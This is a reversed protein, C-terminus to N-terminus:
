AHVAGEFAYGFVEIDAAYREAVYAITEEDHYEPYPLRDRSRAAHATPIPRGLLGALGALDAMRHEFRIVFDADRTWEVTPACLDQWREPTEQRPEVRNVMGRLLWDRFPEEERAWDSPHRLCWLSVVRDWPNRTCSYWFEGPPKVPPPRRHGKLEFRDPRWSERISTGGTRPPHFFRSRM